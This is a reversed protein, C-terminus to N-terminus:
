ALEPQLDTDANAHSPAGLGADVVVSVGELTLVLSPAGAVDVVGLGVVGSQALQEAADFGDPQAFAQLGGDGPVALGEAGSGVRTREEGSWHPCAWGTTGNQCPEVGKSTAGGTCRLRRESGACSGKWSM